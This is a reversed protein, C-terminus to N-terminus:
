RGAGRDPHGRLVPRLHHAPCRARGARRGRGRAEGLVLMQDRLGAAAIQAEIGRLYGAHTPMRAGAIAFRADPRERVIRAAAAVFHEVGKQPDLNGVLGLLPAHAPVGAAGRASGSGSRRPRRSDRLLRGALRRHVGAGPAAPRRRAPARTGARSGSVADALGRVAGMLPRRAPPPVRTDVIQWVVPVRELRAAIAAQPNALGPLLVLDPRERRIAGRLRAVDARLRRATALQLAPDRNMRTRTLPMTRVDVGAGVLRPVANGPEDPLLAVTAVGRERLAAELGAM